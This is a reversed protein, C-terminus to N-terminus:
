SKSFAVTQPAQGSQSAIVNQLLFILTSLLDTNADTEVRIWEIRLSRSDDAEGGWGGRQGGGGGGRGGKRM